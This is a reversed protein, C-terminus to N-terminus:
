GASEGSRKYPGEHPQLSLLNVMLSKASNSSLSCLRRVVYFILILTYGRGNTRCPICVFSCRCSQGRRVIPSGLNCVIHRSSVKNVNNIIVPITFCESPRTTLRSCVIHLKGTRFVHSKTRCLTSSALISHQTLLLFDIFSM